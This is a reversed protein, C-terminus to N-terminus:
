TWQWQSLIQQLTKKKIRLSEMAEEIIERPEVERNGRSM